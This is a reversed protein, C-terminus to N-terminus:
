ISLVKYAGYLADIKAYLAAVDASNDIIENSYLRKENESMQAQIRRQAQEATCADRKIIRALRIDEPATVLWVSDVYKVWGAEILLPVDWFILRANVGCLEAQSRQMLTQLVLPHIIDNLAQRKEADDFIIKAVAKRNLTGDANIAANGFLQMIRELGQTKPEVVERAIIDADLVLAGLKSLYSSVTSKGSGITGTLGIIM